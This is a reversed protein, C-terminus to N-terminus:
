AYQARVGDIRGTPDTHTLESHLATPKIQRSRRRM